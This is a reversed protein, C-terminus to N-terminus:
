SRYPRYTAVMELKGALPGLAGPDLPPVALNVFDLLALMFQPEPEAGVFLRTQALGSANDFSQQIGQQVVEVDFEGVDNFKLLVTRPCNAASANGPAVQKATMRTPRTLAIMRRTWPSFNEGSVARYEDGDLVDISSLDYSAMYRPGDGLSVYRKATEVGPISAREPLHETDYWSNLEEEVTPAPDVTVLLLGMQAHKM